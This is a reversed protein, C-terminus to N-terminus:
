IDTELRTYGVRNTDDDSSLPTILFSFPSMLIGTHSHKNNVSKWTLRKQWIPASCLGANLAPLCLLTM